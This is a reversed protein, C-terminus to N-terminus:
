HKKYNVTNFCKTESLVFFLEWDMKIEINASDLSNLSVQSSVRAREVVCTNLLVGLFLNGM